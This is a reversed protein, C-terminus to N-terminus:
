SENEWHAEIGDRDAKLVPLVAAAMVVAAGLGIWGVLVMEYHDDEFCSVDNAVDLELNPDCYVSHAVNVVTPMFFFGFMVYEMLWYGINYKRYFYWVVAFITTFVISLISLSWFMRLYTSDEFLLAVEELDEFYEENDDNWGDGSNDPAMIM